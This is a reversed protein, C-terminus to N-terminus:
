APPAGPAFPRLTASLSGLKFAMGPGPLLLDIKREQPKVDEPRFYKETLIVRGSEGNHIVYDSNVYAKLHQFYTGATLTM